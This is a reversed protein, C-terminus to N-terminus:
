AYPHLMNSWLLLKSAAPRLGHTRKIGRIARELRGQTFGDLQLGLDVHWSRLAGLEHRISHFTRTRAM